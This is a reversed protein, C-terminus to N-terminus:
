AKGDRTKHQKRNRPKTDKKAWRRKFYNGVKIFFDVNYGRDWEDPAPEIPLDFLAALQGHITQIETTYGDYTRDTVLQRMYLICEEETITEVEASIVETIKIFLRRGLKDIHARSRINKYYYEEGEAVTGPGCTRIAESVTGVKRKFNLQFRNM